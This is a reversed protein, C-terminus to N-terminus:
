STLGCQGNGPASLIQQQDTIAVTENEQYTSVGPIPSPSTILAVGIATTCNQLTQDQSSGSTSMTDGFVNYYTFVPTSTPNSVDTLVVDNSQVALSSSLVERSLTGVTSPATPPTYVWEVPSTGGAPQNENLVVSDAANTTSSPFQISHASRIDRAMLALATSAAQEETVMTDNRVAGQQLSILSTGAITLVISMVAMVVMLEVLTFGDRLAQQRPPAPLPSRPRM